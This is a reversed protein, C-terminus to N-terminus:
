GFISDPSGYLEKRNDFVSGGLQTLGNGIASIGQANVEQQKAASIALGTQQQYGIYQINSMAQTGANAAGAVASSSDGAGQNVAGQTIRAAQTNSDRIQQTRERAAQLNEMNSQAQQAKKQAEGGAISGAVSTVLGAGAIALGVWPM